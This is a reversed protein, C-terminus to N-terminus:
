KEIEKRKDPEDQWDSDFEDDEPDNEPLQNNVAGCQQCETHTLNSLKGMWIVQGNCARCIM